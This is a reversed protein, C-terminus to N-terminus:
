LLLFQNDNVRRSFINHDQPQMKLYPAPIKCNLILQTYALYTHYESMAASLAARPLTESTM